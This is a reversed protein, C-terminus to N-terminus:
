SRSLGSSRSFHPFVTLFGEGGGYVAVASLRSSTVTALQFTWRNRRRVSDPASGGADDCPRGCGQQVAGRAGTTACVPMDVVKDLARFQM